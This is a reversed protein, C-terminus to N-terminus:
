CLAPQPSADPLGKIDKLENGAHYGWGNTASGYKGPAPISKKVFRLLVM